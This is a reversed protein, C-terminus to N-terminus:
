KREREREGKQAQEAAGLLRKPRARQMAGGPGPADRAQAARWRRVLAPCSLSSTPLWLDAEPGYGTFRVLNQFQRHRGLIEEM